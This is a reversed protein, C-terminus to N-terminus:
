PMPKKRDSQDRTLRKKLNARWAWIQPHSLDSYKSYVEKTPANVIWSAEKNDVEPMRSNVRLAKRTRLNIVTRDRACLALLDITRYIKGHSDKLIEILPAPPDKKSM